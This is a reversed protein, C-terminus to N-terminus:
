FTYTLRMAPVDVETAIGASRAGAGGAGPSTMTFRVRNTELGTSDLAGVHGSTLQLVEPSDDPDTPKEDSCAVLGASLACALALGAIPLSPHNDRM